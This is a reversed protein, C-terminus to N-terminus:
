LLIYRFYEIDIIYSVINHQIFKGYHKIAKKAIVHTIVRYFKFKYQGQIDRQWYSLQLVKYGRYPEMFLNLCQM